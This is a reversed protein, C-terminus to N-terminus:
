CRRQTLASPSINEWATAVLVAILSPAAGWSLAALVVALILPVGPFRFRPVLHDLTGSVALAALVYALAGGYATLPHRWRGPLWAPWYTNAAFWAGIARM